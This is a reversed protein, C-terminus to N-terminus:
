QGFITAWPIRNMADSYQAQEWGMNSNYQNAQNTIGQQQLNANILGLKETLALRQEDTMLGAGLQLAQMIEQRQQELARVGLEGSFSASAEGAAQEAAGIQADMAGSNAQGSAAMREAIANRTRDTGRQQQADYARMAGQYVPSDMPDGPNMLQQIKARISDGFAGSGMGNASGSGAGAGGTGDSDPQWAWGQNGGQDFGLGVDVIGIGPINISDIGVLQAGPFAAQIAPMAQQLGEPTSGYMSLIRGV